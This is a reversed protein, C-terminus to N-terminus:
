KQIVSEAPRYSTIPDAHRHLVKWVGEERRFIITARLTRPTIEDRRGVKMEYREVEVIYALDPTVYKSIIEFGTAGGDRYQTAALEATDSVPKWGRVAPSVPNALSCTM